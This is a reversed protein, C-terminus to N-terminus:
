GTGAQLKIFRVLNVIETFDGDLTLVRVAIVVYNHQNRAVFVM